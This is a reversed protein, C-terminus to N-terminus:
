STKWIYILPLGDCMFELTEEKREGENGLTEKTTGTIVCDFALHIDLQTATPVERILIDIRFRHGINEGYM